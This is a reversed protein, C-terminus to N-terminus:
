LFKDGPLTQELITEVIEKVNQVDADTSGVDLSEIGNSWGACTYLIRYHGDVTFTYEKKYIGVGVETLNGTEVLSNDTAKRITYAITKGTVVSGDTDLLQVEMTYPEDRDVRTKSATM